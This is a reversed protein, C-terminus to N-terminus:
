GKLLEYLDGDEAGFFRRHAEARESAARLESMEYRLGRFQDCLAATDEDGFWDGYFAIDRIIGDKVDILAEVTGWAFKKRKRLTFAPSKGYNWEWSGYKTRELDEIAEDDERTLERRDLRRQAGMLREMFEETSLEGVFPRINTVRARVSEVAHSKFKDEPAKLVRGLMDLDTDWLLTGHHMMTGGRRFQAGGSIKKGDATIDNRGSFAAPVGMEKLARVIPGTFFSFNFQGIDPTIYTYNVNGLDHYVAGGGSNRRVVEIGHERAFDADIEAYANQFRGIIVSPSGRWLLFFAERERRSIDCLHEELALCYAPRTEAAAVTQM